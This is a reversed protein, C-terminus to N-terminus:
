VPVWGRKLALARRRGSKELHDDGVVPPRDYALCQLFAPLTVERGSGVWTERTGDRLKSLCKLLAPDGELPDQQTLPTAVWLLQEWRQLDQNWRRRARAESPGVWGIGPSDRNVEPLRGLIREVSERLANATRRYGAEFLQGATAITSLLGSIDSGDSPVRRRLYVPTVRHGRFADTGCSERFQGTWFSKAANVKFGLAELYSSIAPAEDAPVILDDGYVHVDRALRRVRDTSPFQGRVELRAAIISCFFILSEIPFCLASGMSAFKRLTIREGSPLQARTSRSAMVLSRFSPARLLMRDVMALSVRDSAESLDLTALNGDLSGETALRQNVTQDSFNVRTGTIQGSEIRSVLVRKLAQQAYQMVCPEIAIVRPTKLTKPVLTVRVPTEEDPGIFATEGTREERAEESVCAYRHFSFGAAELRQTWQKFHWKGNPTHREVVVGPGHTPSLSEVGHDLQLSDVVIDFVRGLRRLSPSRAWDFETPVNQDCEAFKRVATEVRAQSCPILVKKGFLCIARVARICDIRADARLLGEKDFVHLLFGQLFRPIGYRNAAFGAPLSSWRGEALARDFASAFTPLTITIFSEGEAGVRATLRGLDRGIPVGCKRGCDLLLLTLLDVLSKM